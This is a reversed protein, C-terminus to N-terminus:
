GRESRNRGGQKAQYLAQDARALLQGAAEGQQWQAVGISITVDRDTGLADFRTQSVAQRVREVSDFAADIGIGPLLIAFEEGGWRAVQDTKRVTQQLVRAIGCLVQDGAAHLFEDNIAKFYDVDLLALCLPEGYRQSRRIESKIAEDFARRNALGTMADQSALRELEATKEDVLRQLRVRSRALAAVRWHVLGMVLAMLTLTAALWFWPTQWFWPKVSFTIMAPLSWEGGPYSARVLFRYEGPPLQTYEASTTRGKDLWGPDFGELRVQYRIQDPMRYGLGAYVFEVRSTGAALQAGPAFRQGDVLSREIVAPPEIRAHRSLREPSIRVAGEATAFWVDGRSDTLAALSGTNVQPSAMGDSVSFHQISLEPAQGGLVAKLSGRAIRQIGRSSGVWVDGQHDVTVGFYKEFLLGHQRDLSQWRQQAKRYVLLGRDTAAYVHDADEALGFVAQVDGLPTLDFTKISAEAGPELSVRSLGSLSGVWLEARDTSWLLSAVFDSSLGDSATLTRVIDMRGPAVDLEVLGAATGLWLTSGDGKSVSRVQRSGLGTDLSLQARLQGDHWQAVGDTYSGVYLSSAQDIALSLVSTNAFVEGSGDLYGIEGEDILSVGRNSGVVVRGQDDEILARVFDGSLGHRRTFSIAPADRFQALGGHTSVWVSGEHDTFLDLVHQNPLGEAVEFRELHDGNIRGLGHEFTGYWLLGDPGEHLVSFTGEIAMNETSVPEFATEGPARRLLQDGAGVYLSGDSHSLMARIVVAPVGDEVSFRAEHAAKRALGRTTTAWLVNDHDILLRYVTDSPLGDDRGLVRHRGDADIRSLGGGATAVWLTGQDDALIDYVFGPAQPLARWGSEDRLALGSRDGGFVVAGTAQSVHAAFVGNDPLNTVERRDFVQFTRGNFRVPGEWTALWLYGQRDQVIRNVSNHPLGDRTSWHEMVYHTLPKISEAAQLPQPALCLGFAM